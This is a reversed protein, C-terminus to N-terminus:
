NFCFLNFGAGPLGKIRHVRKACGAGVGAPVFASSSILRTMSACRIIQVVVPFHGDLFLEGSLSDVIEVHM